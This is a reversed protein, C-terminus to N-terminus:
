EIAIVEFGREGVVQESNRFRLFVEIASPKSGNRDAVSPKSENCVSSESVSETDSEVTISQGVLIAREAVRRLTVPLETKRQANEGGLRTVRCFM